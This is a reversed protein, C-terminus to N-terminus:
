TKEGRFSVHRRTKQKADAATEVTASGAPTKRRGAQETRRGHGKASKWGSKQGDNSTEVSTDRQWESGKGSDLFSNIWWIKKTLNSDYQTRTGYM